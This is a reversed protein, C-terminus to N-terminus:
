IGQQPKRSYSTKVINIKKLMNKQKMQQLLFFGLGIVVIIGGLVKQTSLTEQGLILGTILVFVPICLGVFNLKFISLHHHAQFYLIRYLFLGITQAIALQAFILLPIPPISQTILGVLGILVTFIIGRWFAFSPAHMNNTNPQQLHQKILFSQIAYLFARLLLLIVVFSSIEGSLDSLTYFGVCAIIVGIIEKPDFKEKLFLVSLGFIFVLDSRGIFSVLSPSTQSVAYYWVFAGVTTIASIKLLLHKREKIETKLNQRSTKSCLYFPSVCLVAGFSGWFAIQMATFDASSNFVHKTIGFQITLILGGLLMLSYGKLSSKKM